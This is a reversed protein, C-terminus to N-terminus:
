DIARGVAVWFPGIPVSEVIASGFGVGAVVPGNGGGAGPGRRDGGSPSKEPMGARTALAELTGCERAAWLLALERWAM